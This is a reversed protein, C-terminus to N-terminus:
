DEEDSVEFRYGVGFITKIYKHDGLYKRLNKIYTDVIRDEVYIEYGWVDDLLTERSCIKGSNKIFYALLEFETKSLTKEENDIYVKHADLDVKVAGAELTSPAEKVEIQLRSLLNNVKAVLVKPSFPKVIYDDVKLKYGKLMDEEASLATMMIIPINSTERITKAVTWGDIKPMMIDLCVVDIKEKNFISLGDFGNDATYTIYGDKQFYAKVVRLITLEDEIILISKQNM